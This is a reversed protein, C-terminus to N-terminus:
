RDRFIRSIIKYLNAWTWAKYSLPWQSWGTWNLLRAPSTVSTAIWWGVGSALLAAVSDGAPKQLMPKGIPQEGVSRDGIEIRTRM